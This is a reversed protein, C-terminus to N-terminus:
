ARVPGGSRGRLRSRRLRRARRRHEGYLALLLTGDFGIRLRGRRRRVLLGGLLLAAMVMAGSTLFWEDM